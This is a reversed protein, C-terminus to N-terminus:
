VAAQCSNKESSCVAKRQEGGTLINATKKTLSKILFTLRSKMSLNKRLGAARVASVWPRVCHSGHVKVRGTNLSAWFELDSLPMLAFSATLTVRRRPPLCVRQSHFRVICFRHQEPSIDSHRPPPQAAGPHEAPQKLHQTCKRPFYFISKAALVLNVDIM